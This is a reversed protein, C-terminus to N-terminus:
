EGNLKEQKEKSIWKGLIVNLKITDIPKSLFDNFGSSLFMERTGAVANATLAIIPLNAYKERILKTAEIGDMEPM